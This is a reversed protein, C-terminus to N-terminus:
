PAHDKEHEELMAAAAAALHDHKAAHARAVNAKDLQDQVYAKLADGASFRVDKVNFWWRWSGLAGREVTVSDGDIEARASYLKPHEGDHDNVVYVDEFRRTM